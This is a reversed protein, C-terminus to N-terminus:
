CAVEPCDGMCITRGPEGEVPFFSAGAFSLRWFLSCSLFNISSRFADPTEAILLRFNPFSSAHARSNPSTQFIRRRLLTATIASAIGM